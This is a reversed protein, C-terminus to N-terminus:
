LTTKQTEREYVVEGNIMTLLVKTQFLDSSNSKLIDRDMVVLDAKKGVELSGLENEQFQSKAAWITMARLAEERSLANEMQFGNQPWGKQDQRTVASYFGFIPNISEIPFDSGNPIWGNVKLLDNYAYAYKIRTPGLREEAWYMDSTAHTPQVSPVVNLEAMSKQDDPHVIQSHEIRWRLDNKGSLFPRYLELVARVAGDGIGHSCVQFGNEHAQKMIASLENKPHLLLGKHGPRDTYDELLLAGRSGLAGDAYIKVSRASLRDTVLPGNPLITDLDETASEIMAYVRMKLEDSQQISDILTITQWKLGADGVSTLGVAFCNEQAKLMGAKQEQGSPEPIMRKLSDTANDVLIGTLEGDAVILEGGDILTAETFGAIKLAATNAIVAHGDIRTLAVPQDPFLLNLKENTPYDTVEWDNQDWGRGLVWGTPNAKQHDVVIELVEEWNSTGRLDANRMSMGYGYFHCHPDILGPLVNEGELDILKTAIYTALIVENSGVAVINGNHIAIAQVVTLSDDVTQIFGNHLITDVTTKDPKM